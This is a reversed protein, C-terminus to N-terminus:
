DLNNLMEAWKDMVKDTSFRKCSELCNLAIKERELPNEILFQMRDAYTKIDNPKVIYGDYADTIIDHLAPYTDLAIPVTGTQMSETLTLGWGESASTMMFISAKKYYPKPDGWGKWVVNCLSMDASMQMLYDKHLGDGIINLTWDDVCGRDQLKKWVKLVIDIRKEPNYLRSVVLVEKKKQQLITPEEIKEWSLPNSISVFRINQETGLISKAIPIERASLLLSVDSNTLTYRFDKALTEWVRKKWIPYFIFKFLISLKARLSLNQTFEFKLFNYSLKSYILRFSSHYESIFKVGPINMKKVLTTLSSSFAADQGIIIDCKHEILHNKLTEVSIMEELSQDSNYLKFSMYDDLTYLYHVDFGLAPLHKLLILIVRHVGGRQENLRETWFIFIHKM